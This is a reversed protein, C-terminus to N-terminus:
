EKLRRFLEEAPSSTMEGANYADIRSEVEKVWLAELAPDVPGHFSEYLGEFIAAREEPSLHLAQELLMQAAQTM